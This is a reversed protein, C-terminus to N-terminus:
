IIEARGSQPSAFTIVVTSTNPTEIDADVEFDNIWVTVSAPYRGLINTITWTAAPTTQTHTFGGDGAPGPAGQPGQAGSVSVSVEVATAAVSATVSPPLGVEVVVPTPTAVSVDIPPQAASTVATVVAPPVMTIAATM